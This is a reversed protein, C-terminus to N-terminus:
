DWTGLPGVELAVTGGSVEDKSIVSQIVSFESSKVKGDKVEALVIKPNKVCEHVLNAIGEYNM